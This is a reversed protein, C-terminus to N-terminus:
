RPGFRSLRSRLRSPLTTELAGLRRELQEIRRQAQLAEDRAALAAVEAVYAEDVDPEAFAVSRGERLTRLADRVRTDTALRGEQLGRALADDDVAELQEREWQVPTRFPFHLIDVPYWGRLPLLGDGFADHSGPGITVEPDARHLAKFHPEFPQAPACLRATMREAFLPEGLPRPVFHRVMGRVVGFRRPVAALVEKLTGGRPWWLEDADSAFVWDAGHDTAALRAMRTLREAGEGAERVLHLRGKREYSELIEATGDGEGEDTAIVFDVGAHLHFAIQADVIDAADRALLTMVLRM